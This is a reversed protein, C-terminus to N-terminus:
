ILDGASSKGNSGKRLIELERTGAVATSTAIKRVVMLKLSCYDPFRSDSMEILYFGPKM